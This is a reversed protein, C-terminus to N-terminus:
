ATWGTAKLVELADIAQRCLMGTDGGDSLPMLERMSSELEYLWALVTEIENIPPKMDAM